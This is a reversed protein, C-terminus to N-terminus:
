KIGVTVTHNKEEARVSKFRVLATELSESNDQM